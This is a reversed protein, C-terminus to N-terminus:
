RYISQRPSFDDIPTRQPIPSAPAGGFYYTLFARGGHYDRYADLGLITMYAVGMGWRGITASLGAKLDAGHRDAQYLPLKPYYLGFIQANPYLVVGGGAHIPYAIQTGYAIEVLRSVEAANFIGTSEIFSETDNERWSVRVAPTLAFGAWQFNSSVYGSVFQSTTNYSATSLVGAVFRIQDISINGYGYSAGVTLWNALSYETTVFGTLGETDSSAGPGLYTLVNDSQSYVFGAGATWQPTLTYNFGNTSQWGRASYERGPFEGNFRYYDFLTYTGLTPAWAAVQAPAAKYVPVDAASAVSTAMACCAILMARSKNV